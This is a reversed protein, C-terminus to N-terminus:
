TWDLGLLIMTVHAVLVGHGFSMMTGIIIYEAEMRNRHEILEGFRFVSKAAILFGISAPQGILVFLFILARELQGIISGGQEFGRNSGAGPPQDDATARDLEELLPKVALGVLFGGVRVSLVLGSILILARLYDAGFVEVGYLGVGTWSIAIAIPVLTIAHALQDVVFVTLDQRSLRAKIADIGVHSVLVAAPIQWSQWAGCLLYSVGAVTLGHVLLLRLDRKGTAVRRSQLLFDGSLHATYLAVLLQLATQNV